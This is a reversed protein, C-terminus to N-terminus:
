AVGKNNLLLEEQAAQRVLQGLQKGLDPRLATLLTALATLNGTEQEYAPKEPGIAPAAGINGLDTIKLEPVATQGAAAAQAALPRQSVGDMERHPNGYNSRVFNIMGALQQSSFALYRGPASQPATQAAQNARQLPIPRDNAAQINTSM